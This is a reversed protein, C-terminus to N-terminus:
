KDGGAFPKIMSHIFAIENTSLNYKSFLLEDSWKKSFDQEPVLEYVMKTAHQTNKKMLVLFRFFDTSMYSIINNAEDTSSCTRVVLYTESCCSGSPVVFPRGIVQYPFSGREGYAYSICIKIRSLWGMNESIKGKEIFGNKPYAFIPIFTSDKKNPYIKENTTIGFPKRSSIFDNFHKERKSLIKDVITVAENFRIFTDSNNALLPRQQISINGNLHEEISCDGTNDRNWLFYCIGGSIDVGPFCETSDFYDVLNSIHKDHLMEYRFSDLGKGGSYWRAPVIMSLYRPRLKKAQEIFDQYIPKASAKNGGDDLQYPPNGIIVDFKMNFIEEPKTTHIFEYAHSELGNRGKGFTDEGCGCYVCHKNKFTHHVDKFRINGQVNDFHAVSYKGNPYKSCYLSRRSMLGTLETIAIGFLQKHFIHDLRKQLDPIENSLGCILRKAIERLFVGSKVAPDLFTTNPNRFLEQPLMDIMKKAVDPPTFVEDNSLDALCSLVDPTYNTEIPQKDSM